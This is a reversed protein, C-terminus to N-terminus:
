LFLKGQDMWVVLPVDFLVLLVLFVVSVWVLALILWLFDSVLHQLLFATLLHTWLIVWLILKEVFDVLLSCILM